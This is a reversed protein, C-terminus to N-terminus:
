DADPVVKRQMFSQRYCEALRQIRTDPHPSTWRCGLIDYELTGHGTPRHDAECTFCLLLRSASEKVVTFRVADCDRAKPLRGCSSAYGLNCSQHLEEDTPQVGEHGPASCHGRWGGGLPLRLPHPWRGDDFKTLPVFFPCAM